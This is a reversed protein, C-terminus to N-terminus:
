LLQNYMWIHEWMFICEFYRKTPDTMNKMLAWYSSMNLGHSAHVCRYFVGSGPRDWAIVRILTFDHVISERCCNYCFKLHCRLNFKIGPLNTEDHWRCILQIILWNASAEVNLHWDHHNVAQRWPFWLETIDVCRPNILTGCKLVIGDAWIKHTDEQSIIGM